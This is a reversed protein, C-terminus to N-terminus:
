KNAAADKTKKNKEATAVINKANKEMMAMMRPQMIGMMAPMVEQMVQPMIELSKKGAPSMHFATIAQIEALSFHKSYVRVMLDEMGQVVQPDKFIEQLDRSANEKAVAALARAEARQEPTLKKESSVGEIMQDMMQPASQSMANGMQSMVQKFNIADLLEKVAVKTESSSQAQAAAATAALSLSAVLWRLGNM